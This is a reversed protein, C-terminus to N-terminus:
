QCGSEDIQGNCNDDINNGCIEAAGPHVNPNTDDCDNGQISYGPQLSCMYVSIYPTGFGDGDQDLYYPNGDKTPAEDIQGDCNDDIGNCFEDAGPFIAPNNDNCDTGVAAYGVPPICGTATITLNPNGYNDNDQDQYYTILDTLDDILGNCDNDIWDCIEVAGPHIDARSDNCDAYNAVYGQPIPDSCPWMLPDSGYGDGDYDAYVYSQSESEDIQGNCNNDIGDCIEIFIGPNAYYADDNCDDQNLVYGAPVPYCSQISVAANGYGDLDNDLYFTATEDVLGNCNNDNGDLIEPAGPHVLPNSDDCDDYSLAYGTPQYCLQITTGSLNGHGDGDADPYYLQLSLAGSFAVNDDMDCDNSVYGATQVSSYTQSFHNGFGDGDKDAYYNHFTAPLWQTGNWVLMDGVANGAMIPAGLSSWATGNYYEFATSSTNYILLGAAPSAIANRQAVNLRPVLMGKSASKIDLLASNDPLSGDDNIAVQSHANLGFVLFLLVLKTKM